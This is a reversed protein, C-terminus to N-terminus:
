PRAPRLKSTTKDKRHALCLFTPARRTGSGQPNPPLEHQPNGPQRLVESSASLEQAIAM